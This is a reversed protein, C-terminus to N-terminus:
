SDTNHWPPWSGSAVVEDSLLAAYLVADDHAEDYEGIVGNVLANMVAQNGLKDETIAGPNEAEFIGECGAFLLVSALAASAASRARILAHHVSTRANRM